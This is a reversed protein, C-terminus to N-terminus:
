VDFRDGTMDKLEQLGRSIMTRTAGESKNLNKAIEELPMQDLYYWIIANQCDDKLQSIGHQIIRMDATKIAEEQMNTNDSIEMDEDMPSVPNNGKKRYHDIVINRASQYLFAKPNEIKRGEQIKEWLKTFVEATLDEAVFQSSTKLFVFRYISQIYQDYIQSFQEQLNNMLITSIPCDMVDSM